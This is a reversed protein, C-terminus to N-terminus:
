EKINKELNEKENILLSKATKRTQFASEQVALLCKQLRKLTDVDMVVSNEELESLDWIKTPLIESSLLNQYLSTWEFKYKHGEFEIPAQSAQYYLEDLKLLENDIEELRKKNKYAETDKLDIIKNNQIIFRDKNQLYENYDIDIFESNPFEWDAYDTLINNKIKIYM